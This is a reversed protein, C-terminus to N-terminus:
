SFNFNHNVVISKKRIVTNLLSILFVPFSSPSFGRVPKQFIKYTENKNGKQISRANNTRTHHDKIYCYKSWASHRSAQKTKWSHLHPIELQIRKGAKSHSDNRIINQKNLQVTDTKGYVKISQMKFGTLADNLCPSRIRFQIYLSLPLSRSNSNLLLYINKLM